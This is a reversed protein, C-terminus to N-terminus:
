VMRAKEEQLFVLGGILNAGYTLYHKTRYIFRVGYVQAWYIALRKDTNDNITALVRNDCLNM